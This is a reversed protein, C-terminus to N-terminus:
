GSFVAKSGGHQRAEIRGKIQRAPQRAVVRIGLVEHRFRHQTRKAGAVPEVTRIRPRPQKADHAIGQVAPLPTVAHLSLARRKVLFLVTEIRLGVCCNLLRVTARLRQEQLLVPPALQLLRPGQRRGILSM